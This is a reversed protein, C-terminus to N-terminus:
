KGFLNVPDKIYIKWNWLCQRIEFSLYIFGLSISIIFLIKRHFDVLNLISALAFCIFFITYFFWISFYYFKGFTKWKFDIIAAFNWWKYFNNSDINCFLISKSKYLFENWPNYDKSQYKCIQPFPVIFSITSIISIEQSNEIIIITYSIYSLYTNNYIDM